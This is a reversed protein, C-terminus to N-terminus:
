HCHNQLQTQSLPLSSSAWHTGAGFIYVNEKANHVEFFLTISGGCLMGTNVADIIRNDEGMIYKQLMSSKNHKLLSSAEKTALFELAGGGITGFTRETHTVVMKAGSIQPGHGEKDVVTILVFSQNSKQLSIIEEYINM